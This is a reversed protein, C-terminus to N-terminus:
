KSEKIPQQVPPQPLNLGSHEVDNCQAGCCDRDIRSMDVAVCKINTSALRLAGMLYRMNNFFATDRGAHVM